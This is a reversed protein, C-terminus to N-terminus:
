PQLIGKATLDTPTSFRVDGWVPFDGTATAALGTYDGVFGTTGVISTSRSNPFRNGRWIKKGLRHM